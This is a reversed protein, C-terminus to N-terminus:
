FSTNTTVRDWVSRHFLVFIIYLHADLVVDFLLDISSIIICVFFVDSTGVFLLLHYSRTYSRICRHPYCTIVAINITPSLPLTSLLHYRRPSVFLSTWCPTPCSGFEFHRHPRRRCPAFSPVRVVCTRSSYTLLLARFYLLCWPGGQPLRVPPVRPEHVFRARTM